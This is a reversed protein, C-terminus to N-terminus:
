NYAWGQGARGLEAWGQGARGLGAGKSINKIKDLMNSQLYPLFTQLSNSLFSIFIKAFVKMYAHWILAYSSSWLVEGCKESGKWGGEGVKRGWKRWELVKMFVNSHFGAHWRLKVSMVTGVSESVM